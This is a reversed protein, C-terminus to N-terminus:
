SLWAWTKRRKIDGVTEGDVGFRLGISRQTEGAALRVRIERVQERVLRANKHAREGRATNMRGKAACDAM